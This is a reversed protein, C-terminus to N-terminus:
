LRVCLVATLFPQMNNHAGGGGTSGTQSFNTNGAGGAADNSSSGGTGQFQTAVGGPGHTHAPMEGTVLTHAAEGGSSGSTTTGGGSNFTVGALRGSTTDVNVLSRAQADPLAIPKNAAWDAAANAGRGGTVPCLTNSFNNYVFTYLQQADAAAHAAASAASGITQGILPLFGTPVVSALMWMLQGTGGDGGRPIQFETSDFILEAIQGQVLDYPNLASLDRRTINYNNTGAPTTVAITTPGTVTANLKVKIKTGTNLAFGPQTINVALASASGSDAVYVGGAAQVAQLLMSDNTNDVTIGMGRILARVQALFGNFFSGSLVTGDNSTPNSADKFYTDSGGFVRTDSPRSTVTNAANAPGLLDTM